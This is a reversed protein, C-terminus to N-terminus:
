SNDWSHGIKIEDHAINQKRVGDFYVIKRKGKWPM